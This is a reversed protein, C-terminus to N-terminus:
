NAFWKSGLSIRGAIKKRTNSGAGTVDKLEQSLLLEGVREAVKLSDLTSLNRYVGTAVVDFLNTSFGSKAFRFAKGDPFADNILKFTAEIQAEVASDIKFKGESGFVMFEDLFESIDHKPLTSSYVFAMLRLIMEDIRMKKADELSLLLAEGIAPRNALERLKTPFESGFIRATCNRIEQDSLMSGQKNLRKFVEYRARPSSEKELLIITIRAYRVTRVLAEPLTSASFGELSKIIPGEALILPTRVDNEPEPVEPASPSPDNEFVEGSFFKILTSIRQLGDIVEFDGKPNTALFLPPSPINLLISEIYQTQQDNNWRFLRQYEPDIKLDKDKFQGIIERWTTTYTDTAIEQRYQDIEALINM